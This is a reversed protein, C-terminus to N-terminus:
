LSARKRDCPEKKCPPKRLASSFSLTSEVRIQMRKGPRLECVLARAQLTIVWRNNERRISLVM